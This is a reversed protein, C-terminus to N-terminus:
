DPDTALHAGWKKKFEADFTDFNDLANAIARYKSTASAYMGMMLGSFVGCLGLYFQHAESRDTDTSVLIVIGAAVFVFSITAGMVIRAALRIMYLYKDREGSHFETVLQHFQAAKKYRNSQKALKRRDLLSTIDKHLLNAAISAALSLVAGVALGLWFITDMQGCGGCAIKVLKTSDVHDAYRWFV